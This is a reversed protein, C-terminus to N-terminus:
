RPEQDWGINRRGPTQKRLQRRTNGVRENMQRYVCLVRRNKLVILIFAGKSTM